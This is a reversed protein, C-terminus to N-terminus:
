PRLTQACRAASAPESVGDERGAARTCEPPRESRRGPPVGARLEEMETAEDRDAELVLPGLAAREGRTLRARFLGWRAMRDGLDADSSWAALPISFLWAGLVPAAYLLFAPALAAALAIWVAAVLAPAGFARSAAAWSLRERPDRSPSTWPRAQGCWIGVVFVLYQYILMPGVAYSAMVDLLATAMAGRWPARTEGSRWQRVFGLVKPLLQVVPINLFFSWALLAGFQPGQRVAQAFGLLMMLVIAMSLTYNAVIFGLWLRQGLTFGDGLVMAVNLYDGQCWRRDREAYSLVNGPIEEFSGGEEIDLEVAWGARGLLCAEHVDQSLVRGGLPPKGPYIPLRAHERFPAIRIIANHGWYVSEPGLLWKLGCSYLPVLCNVGYQMVRAFPTAARVATMLSQLVATRPSEEMRVILRRATSGLMVSDADLVLMFDYDAGHRELFNFVNGAKFDTRDQRRVLFLRGSGGENFNFEALLDRFAADEDACVAPERSDSLLFFDCHADLGVARASRWSRRIGEAVRGVDEHCIPMVYATRTRPARATTTPPPRKLGLGVAGVMWLLLCVSGFGNLIIFVVSTLATLADAKGWCLGPALLWASGATLALAAIALLLRRWGASLTWLPSAQM